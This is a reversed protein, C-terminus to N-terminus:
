RKRAQACTERASVRGDDARTGSNRESREGISRKKRALRIARSAEVSVNSCPKWPNQHESQWATRFDAEGRITETGSQRHQRLKKSEAISTPLGLSRTSPVRHRGSGAGRENQQRGHNRSKRKFRVRSRAKRGPISVRDLARPVATTQRLCAERTSGGDNTTVGVAIRARLPHAVAYPAHL